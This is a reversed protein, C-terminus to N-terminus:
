SIHRANFKVKLWNLQLVTHNNNTWQKNTQKTAPNEIWQNQAIGIQYCIFRFLLLLLFLHCITFQSNHHNQTSLAYLYCMIPIKWVDCCDTVGQFVLSSGIAMSAIWQLHFHFNIVCCGLCVVVISKVLSQDDKRRFIFFPSVWLYRLIHFVFKTYHRQYFTFIM